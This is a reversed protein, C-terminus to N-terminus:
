FIVYVYSVCLANEFQAKIALQDEDYCWSEVRSPHWAKAILEEHLERYIVKQLDGIIYRFGYKGYLQM